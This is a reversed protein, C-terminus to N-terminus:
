WHPTTWVKQDFIMARVAGDDIWSLDIETQGIMRDRRRAVSRDIDSFLSAFEKTCTESLMAYSNFEPPFGGRSATTEPVVDEAQESPLMEAGDQASGGNLQSKFNPWAKSAAHVLARPSHPSKPAVNLVLHILVVLLACAVAAYTM